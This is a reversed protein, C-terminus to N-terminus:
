SDAGFEFIFFAGGTPDALLAVRGDRIEPNPELLVRGGLSKAKKTTAAVDEVALYPAWIPEVAEDDIEVLGARPEGDFEFLPYSEGALDTESQKYGIVESYFKSATAPDASWLEIWVWNEERSDSGLEQEPDLLVVPAGELDELIAYKAFGKKHGAAEHIKAGLKRAAAVSDALDEVQLGVLWQAEEERSQDEIQSISAIADGNLFITYRNKEREELKWDLLREYFKAATASDETILEVWALQGITGALAVSNWSGLLAVVM